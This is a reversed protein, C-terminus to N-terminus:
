KIRRLILIDEDECTEWGRAKYIHSYVSGPAPWKYWDQLVFGIKECDRRARDSLEVRKRDKMHDKIIISLSGGVPLSEYCKKYIGEMMHHYFFENVQGVNLPDQTYEAMDYDTKEVTLKDKGKSKMIQAYPPSFIIHDAPVPLVTQCPANVLMANNSSGPAILEINALARELLYFFKQSIEICTVRRGLLLGVLITGSGAMIDMVTEDPSSVYKIIEQVLWLNAKAPHKNVETPFIQARYEVDSPFIIWGNDNRSYEPAFQKVSREEGERGVM